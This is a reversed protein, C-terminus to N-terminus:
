HGSKVKGMIRLEIGFNGWIAAQAQPALGKNSIKSQHLHQVDVVVIWLTTWSFSNSAIEFGKLIKGVFVFSQAIKCRGHPDPYFNGSANVHPCKWDSLQYFTSNCGNSMHLTCWNWYYYNIVLALPSKRVAKDYSTQSLSYCFAATFLVVFCWLAGFLLLFCATACLVAGLVLLCYEM